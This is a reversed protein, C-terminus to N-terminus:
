NFLQAKKAEYESKIRAYEDNSVPKDLIVANKLKFRTVGFAGQPTQYPMEYTMEYSGGGTMYPIIYVHDLMYNEAEAFAAYRADIDTIDMAKAVLADYEPIDYGGENMSGDTTIRALNASPDGFRFSYSDDVIDFNLPTFVDEQFSNISYGLITNINESGLAENLMERVLLSKKLEQQGQGSVYLVDVPLKGDVTFEAVPLKNVVTGPTVGKITGDPECVEEIAKYMYEKALAPDYPITDKYPKLLPQDTYDVGKTNYMTEEPLITNRVFYEPREPEWLSSITVRDLSYLIAKRFNENDLFADFEPNGTQWNFTYWYTTASKDTLHIYQEWQTGKLAALQESSMSASTVEGRQFLELSTIDGEVKQAEYNPITIHEADWYFPNASLKMLKDRDWTSIYYGGCYLLKDKGTGYDEGVSDLFEQNVPLFLETVLYSLFYPTAGSLTYELTYEDLAKVGVTEDFTPYIDNRTHATDEGSDVGDLAWYYDALGSVVGRVTSFNKTSNAPDSVYRLATVFDNATVPYQTQEGKDNVWYLDERLKFTWVSMDNNTTWSEALSPVFRGFRDCEVLGDITNAVYSYSGTLMYPNLTEISASFTTKYPKGDAASACGLPLALLLAIVACLIRRPQKLM